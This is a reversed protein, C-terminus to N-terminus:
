SSTKKEHDVKLVGNNLFSRKRRSSKSSPSIHPSRPTPIEEAAVLPLRESGGVLDIGDKGFDAIYRGGGRAPRAQGHPDSRLV